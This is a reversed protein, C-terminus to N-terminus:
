SATAKATSYQREQSGHKEQPEKTPPKKEGEIHISVSQIWFEENLPFFSFYFRETPHFVRILVKQCM